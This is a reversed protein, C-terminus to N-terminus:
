VYNKVTEGATTSKAGYVKYRFSNSYQAITQRRMGGPVMHVVYGTDDVIGVHGVFKTDLGVSSVLVDGAKVQVSTGPYTLEVPVALPEISIGQNELTSASASISGIFLVLFGLFLSFIGKM